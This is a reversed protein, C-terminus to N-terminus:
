GGAAVTLTYDTKGSDGNALNVVSFISRDWLTGGGTAAQSMLGHEVVAASADVTNTGSSTMTDPNPGTNVTNTGTARTSNPNYETTLETVLATDTAAEATNGTGLAHFKLNEAETTNAFAAMLFDVGANTIVKRSVVGYEDVRGDAHIHTFALSSQMIVSRQLTDILEAAIHRPLLAAARKILIGLDTKPNYRRIRAQLEDPLAGNKIIVTPAAPASVVLTM